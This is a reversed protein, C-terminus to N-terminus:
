WYIPVSLTHRISLFFFLFISKHMIFHQLFIVNHRTLMKHGILSQHFPLTLTPYSGETDVQPMTITLYHQIPELVHNKANKHPLGTLM